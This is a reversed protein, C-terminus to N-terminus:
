ILFNNRNVVFKLERLNESGLAVSRFNTLEKFRLTENKSQEKRGQSENKNGTAERRSSKPEHEEKKEALQCSYM